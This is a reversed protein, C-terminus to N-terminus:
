MNHYQTIYNRLEQTIYNRLEQIGNNVNRKESKGNINLGDLRSENNKQLKENRNHLNVLWNAGELLNNLDGSLNYKKAIRIFLINSYLIKLYRADVSATILDVSVNKTYNAYANSYKVWRSRTNANTYAYANTKIEVNELIWRMNNYNIAFENRSSKLDWPFLWWDFHQGILSRSGENILKLATAPNNFAFNLVNMINQSLNRKENNQKYRWNGNEIYCFANNTKKNTTHENHSINQGM